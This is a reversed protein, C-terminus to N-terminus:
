TLRWGFSCQGGIHAVHLDVMSIGMKKRRQLCKVSNQSVHNECIVYCVEASEVAM